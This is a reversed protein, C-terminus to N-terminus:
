HLRYRVRDHEIPWSCADVPVVAKSAVVGDLAAEEEIPDALCPIVPIEVATLCDKMHLWVRERDREQLITHGGRWTYRDYYVIISIICQRV